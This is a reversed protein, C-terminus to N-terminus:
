APALARCRRRCAPLAFWPLSPHDHHERHYGFHFCALLSLWPPLDLTDPRQQCRPAKQCRHPLYTGFVFLQLSSLLLPVICFLLVNMWALSGARYVALGLLLWFLLLGAMQSRRLYGAMFRIYWRLAGARPDPHFDPDEESATRQHHRKHNELCADFPLAAYLLLLCAGLLRNGRENEPLLVGHMSDHGAIFLGTQLHTRVLVAVVVFWWPWLPWEVTLLDVLTISWGVVTFCTFLLGCWTQRSLGCVPKM